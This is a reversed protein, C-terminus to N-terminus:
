DEKKAIGETIKENIYNEIMLPAMLVFGIGWTLFLGEVEVAGMGLVFFFAGTLGMIYKITTLVKKM